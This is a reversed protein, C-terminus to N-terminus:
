RPLLEDLAARLTVEDVAGIYRKRVRGDVDIIYTEPYGFVRYARAIRDYPDPGNPYTIGFNEIFASSGKPVDKVNVGVFAVGRERYARWVRELTPAEERCPECWSAWFNLVVVQGRLGNLSIESGDYLSLTFGPAPRGELPRGGRMGYFLAVLLVVVVGGILLIRSTPEPLRLSPREMVSRKVLPGNM